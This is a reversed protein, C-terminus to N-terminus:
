SESYTYLKRTYGNRKALQKKMKKTLKFYRSKTQGMEISYAVSLKNNFGAIKSKIVNGDILYQNAQDMFTIAALNSVGLDISIIDGTKKLSMEKVEYVIHFQHKNDCCKDVTIMKINKDALLGYVEKPLTINIEKIQRDSKMKKGLSLLLQGNRVRIATKMFVPSLLRKEHKFRPASPNQNFNPSDNYKKVLAYYSKMDKMAQKIAQCYTHAQLYGCRFHDRFLHYYETNTLYNKQLHEYLTM